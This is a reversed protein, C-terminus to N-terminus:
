LVLGSADLAASLKTLGEALAEPRGALSIRFHARRTSSGGPRSPSATSRSCGASSRSPMRASRGAAPVRGIVGARARPELSPTCMSSDGRTM